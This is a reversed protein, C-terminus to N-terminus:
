GNNKISFVANVFKESIFQASSENSDCKRSQQKRHTMALLTELSSAETEINILLALLL